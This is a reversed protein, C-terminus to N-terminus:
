GCVPHSLQPFFILVPERALFILNISLMFGLQCSKYEICSSQSQKAESAIVIQREKIDNRPRRLLGRCDRQM